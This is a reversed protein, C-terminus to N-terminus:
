HAMEEFGIAELWGCKLAGKTWKRALGNILWYSTDDLSGGGVYGIGPTVHGQCGDM